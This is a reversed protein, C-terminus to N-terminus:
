VGYPITVARQFIEDWQLLFRDKSFKEKITNRAERGLKKCLEPDNLLQEIRKRLKAPDNSIFGNLGDTIIEPIMCTATSVCACGCAMAELLSTPVPSVLSTNVFIQASQYEQILTEISPAPKSLGPTNGVVRVPLNQTIEKWLSYGCFYDRNIWDNVVSLLCPKRLSDGPKFLDTDVMHHIIYTDNRNNWGWGSLSFESIFVNLHGRMNRLTKLQEDSWAKMPLTHELSVLPLHLRNAIQSLHQFQGFKNQSLVLDFPIHSPVIKPELLIYNEPIDGYSCDWDKIGETRFAYFIHRSECLGTEYREHTPCTLINLPENVKRTAQRIISNVPNM